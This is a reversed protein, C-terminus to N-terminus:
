FGNSYLYRGGDINHFQWFEPGPHCWQCTGGLCIGASFVQSDGEAPPTRQTVVAAHTQTVSVCHPMPLQCFIIIIIIDVIRYFTRTRFSYYVLMWLTCVKVLCNMEGYKPFLLYQPWILSFCNLIKKKTQKFEVCWTQLFFSFSFLELFVM